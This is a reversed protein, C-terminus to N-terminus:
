QCKDSGARCWHPFVRLSSSAEQLLFCELLLDFASPCLAYLSGMGLGEGRLLNSGLM